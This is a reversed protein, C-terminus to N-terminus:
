ADLEGCDMVRVPVPFAVVTVTVTVGAASVNVACATPDVLVGGLTTV